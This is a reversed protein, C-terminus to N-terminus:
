LDLIPSSWFMTFSLGGLILEWQKMLIGCVILGVSSILGIQDWLDM